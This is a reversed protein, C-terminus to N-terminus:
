ITITGELYTVAQGSILVRGGCDQCRLRGSRGSVQRAELEVKGLRQAWYPILTCHASGTVPDEFISAGPTFFRSVFDVNDGPASVIIGGTGLDLTSLLGADPALARVAAESAYILLYDRALYVAQPPQKLAALILDPATAPQAPRAPFDLTLWGDAQSVLLDGSQSHFRLPNQRNGLHQFLVHATALTAHGCLDMELEPTFWRLHYGDAAPVFFATEALSNELAIQQLVEPALWRELPVVAAPNGHFVQDTFADVHYIPLRM